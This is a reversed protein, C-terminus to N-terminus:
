NNLKVDVTTNKKFLFRRIYCKTLNNRFAKFCFWSKKKENQFCCFVSLIRLNNLLHLKQATKNSGLIFKKPPYIIFDSRDRGWSQVAGLEIMLEAHFGSVWESMQLIPLYVCADLRPVHLPM